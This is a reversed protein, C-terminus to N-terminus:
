LKAKPTTTIIPKTEKTMTCTIPINLKATTHKSSTRWTTILVLKPSTAVKLRLPAVFWTKGKTTNTSRWRSTLHNGTTTMAKIPHIKSVGSKLLHSPVLKVRKTSVGINLRNSARARPKSKAPPLSPPSKTSRSQLIVVPSRLHDELRMGTTDFSFM